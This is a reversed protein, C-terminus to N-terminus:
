SYRPSDLDALKSAAILEVIALLHRKGPAVRVAPEDLPFRVHRLVAATGVPQVAAVLPQGVIAHLKIEISSQTQIVPGSAISQPDTKGNPKSM